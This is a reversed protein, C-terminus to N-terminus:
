LKSLEVIVHQSVDLQNDRFFAFVIRWCNPRMKYYFVQCMCDPPSLVVFYVNFHSYVLMCQLHLVCESTEDIETQENWNITGNTDSLRLQELQHKKMRGLITHM